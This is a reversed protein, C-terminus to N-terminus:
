PFMYLQRTGKYILTVKVYFMSALKEEVTNRKESFQKWELVNKCLYLLVYINHQHLNYTEASLNQSAALLLIIISLQEVITWVKEAETILSM